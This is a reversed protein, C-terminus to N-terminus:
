SANPMETPNAQEQLEGVEEFTPLSSIDKLNFFELFKQTTGYIIPHGPVNKRGEIKIFKKEM